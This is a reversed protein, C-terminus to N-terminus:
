RPNREAALSLLRLAERQLDRMDRREAAAEVRGLHVTLLVCSVGVVAVGLLAGSVVYPLQYPVLLEPAAGLYGVVILVLGVVVSMALALFTSVWPDRLRAWIENM